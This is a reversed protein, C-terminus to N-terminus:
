RIDCKSVSVSKLGFGMFQCKIAIRRLYILYSALLIILYELINYQHQANQRNNLRKSSEKVKHKLHKGM